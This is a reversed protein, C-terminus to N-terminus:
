RSRLSLAQDQRALFSASTARDAASFVEVFDRNGTSLKFGSWGPYEFGTPMGLIDRFLSVTEDYHETRTGVFCVHTVRM